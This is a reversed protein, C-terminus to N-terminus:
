TSDVGAPNSEQRTEKVCEVLFRGSKQRGTSSVQLGAERAMERFEDIGYDCGGVLVLMLMSPDPRGDTVGGSIVVRGGPEAAEGCRKLIAVADRKPWDCIVKHLIYLDACRPLPDFFSQGVATARDAVGTDQFIQRSKAVTSPQDVLIGHVEPHARLVEVLLSGTGGGVDVVTRVRDWNGTVLMEPDPVGHGATGMCIDFKAAIEPHAALDDWFPRGFIEHYAPEGKRVASLLSGWAFAMRAGFGDLDLGVHAAPDLLPRAGDNIAFRGEEPEEFIGQNALYRMLRHLYAANAGCATALPHIESIGAEIQQAVRLTVAVHICWPTCLDSLEWISKAV